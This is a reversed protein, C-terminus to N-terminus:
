PEVRTIGPIGDFDTDFSIIETIGLDQMLVVHHADALSLGTTAYLALVERWRRKGPLVIGELDLLTILQSSIVDRPVRQRRQLTFITEFM